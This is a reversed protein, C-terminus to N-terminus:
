TVRWFLMRNLTSACNKPGSAILERSINISVIEKVVLGSSMSSDSVRIMPSRATPPGTRKAVCRHHIELQHAPISAIRNNGLGALAPHSRKQGRLHREAGLMGNPELCHGVKIVGPV